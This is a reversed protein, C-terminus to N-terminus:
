FLAEQPPTGRMIRSHVTGYKLGLRRCAEKLLVREGAVDVFVGDTRSEVKARDEGPEWLPTTLARELSWGRRLRNDAIKPPLGSRRIAEALIMREGQWEVFHHERKNSAQEEPTAWRCNGPEYNGNVDKRDISHRSSPRPGMDAYFAAFDDKWRDCVKIGRAGYHKYSDSNADYCRARMGVWAIWEPTRTKGHTRSRDVTKEIKLCGCSQSNGTRLNTSNCYALEGCDCRCEWYHIPGARTPEKGYYATVTLRGFRRGVLNEGWGSFEAPTADILAM